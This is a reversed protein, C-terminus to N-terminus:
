WWRKGERIDLTWDMGARWAVLTPGSEPEEAVVVLDGEAGMEKLSAARALLNAELALVCIVL